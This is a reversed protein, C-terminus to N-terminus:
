AVQQVETGVVSTSAEGKLRWRARRPKFTTTFSLAFCFGRGERSILIKRSPRLGAGRRAKVKLPSKIKREQETLLRNLLPPLIPGSRDAGPRRHGRPSRVRISAAPNGTANSGGM